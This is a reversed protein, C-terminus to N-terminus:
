CDLKHVTHMGKCVNAASSLRYMWSSSLIRCSLESKLHFILSLLVCCVFHNEIGCQQHMSPGNVVSMKIVCQMYFYTCVEVVALLELHYTEWMNWLSNFAHKFGSVALQGFSFPNWSVYICIYTHIYIYICMCVRV